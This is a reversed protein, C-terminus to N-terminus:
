VNQKDLELSKNLKAIITSVVVDGTVITVAREHLGSCLCGYYQQSSSPCHWTRVVLYLHMHPQWMTSVFFDLSLLIIMIFNKFVTDINIGFLKAVFFATIILTVCSGDM